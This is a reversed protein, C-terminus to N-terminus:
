VRFSGAKGKVDIPAFKEFPINLVESVFKIKNEVSKNYKIFVNKDYGKRLKLSDTDAYLVFDDLEILRRLLNDRAWATCWCGYSFSLFARKKESDLKKIIDENTLEEELWEESEDLYKVNDRITNTVSM